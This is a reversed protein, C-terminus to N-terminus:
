LQELQFKALEIFPSDGAGNPVDLSSLETWVERASSNDGISAYYKGLSFLASDANPNKSDHALAVLDDLGQKKVSSDGSDLRMLAFKMAYLYYAPSSKSARGMFEKMLTIAEDLKGQRICAEAQFALFFPSMSAHKNQHYGTKFAIEVESWLQKKSAGPASSVARNYDEMCEVFASVAGEQAIDSRWKYVFWGGSAVALALVGVLALRVYRLQILDSLVTNLQELSSM